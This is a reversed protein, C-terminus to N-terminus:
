ESEELTPTKSIENTKPIFDPALTQYILFSFLGVFILSFYVIYDSKIDRTKWEYVEELDLSLAEEIEIKSKEFDEKSINGNSLDNELEHIKNKSLEINSQNADLTEPKKSRFYFNLIWLASVIFLILFWWIM